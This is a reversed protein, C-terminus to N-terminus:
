NAGRIATRLDSLAPQLRELWSEVEDLALVVQEPSTSVGGLEERILQYEQFSNLLGNALPTVRRNANIIRIQVSEPIFEQEETVLRAGEEQLIVFTGYAAYVRQDLTEAQAIPNVSSCAVLFVLVCVGWVMAIIQLPSYRIM